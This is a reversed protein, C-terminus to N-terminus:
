GTLHKSCYLSGIANISTCRSGTKTKYKCIYVQGNREEYIAKHKKCYIDGFISFYKCKNLKYQCKANRLRIYTIKPELFLYKLILPIDKKCLYEWISRDNALRYFRKCVLSTTLVSKADLNCFIIKLLDDFLTFLM